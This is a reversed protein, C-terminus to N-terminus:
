KEPYVAFFGERHTVTRGFLERLRDAAASDGAVLARMLRGEEFCLEHHLPFYHEYLFMAYSTLRFSGHFRPEQGAYEDLPISYHNKVAEIIEERGNGLAFVLTKGTDFYARDVTGHSDSNGVTPIRFGQTLMDRYFAVQLTNEHNTLGGVLEFADAFGQELYLQLLAVPVNYVNDIWFPHCFIAMGGAEHIADIVELCSAHIFPDVGDPLPPLRDMRRQVAEMWEPRAPVIWPNGSTETRCRANVSFDGGFNLIHVPNGPSHVEEGPHIKFDLPLGEYFSIARRSSDMRGHDTLCMFDYGEQRYMAAVFEPTEVGDSYCSHLHFDGLYPRRRFLDEELSYVSTRLFPATEEGRHLRISHEQEGTFTHEFSLCGQEVVATTEFIDPRTSSCADVTMPLVAIRVREKEELRIHGDLPRIRIRTPIGGRVIRPAVEVFYDDRSISLM